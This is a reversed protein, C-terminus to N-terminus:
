PATGGRGAALWVYALAAAVGLGYAALLAAGATPGAPRGGARAHLTRVVEALRDPEPYVTLAVDFVKRRQADTLDEVRDPLGPLLQGLVARSRAQRYAGPVALLVLGALVGLPVAAAWSGSVAAATWVAGVAALRGAAGPRPRRTPGVLDFVRGGDLPLVPLLNVANFAVLVLCFEAQWTGWAPRDAVYITLGAILGPLPGLLATAAQKWAGVTGAAPGALPFLFVRPDRYGFVAMGAIHGLEHAAAALVLLGASRLGAAGQAAVMLIAALIVFLGGAPWAPRDPPVPGALAARTQQYLIEHEIQGL